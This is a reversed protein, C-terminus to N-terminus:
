NNNAKMCCLKDYKELSSRCKGVIKHGKTGCLRVQNCNSEVCHGPNFIDSTYCRKGPLTRLNELVNPNKGILRSFQDDNCDEENGLVNIKHLAKKIHETKSNIQYYPRNVGRGNWYGPGPYFFHAQVNPNVNIENRGHNNKPHWPYDFFPKNM